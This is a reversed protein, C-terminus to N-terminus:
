SIFNVDVGAGLCIGIIGRTKAEDGPTMDLPSM